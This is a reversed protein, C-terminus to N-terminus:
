ALEELLSDMTAIIPNIESLEIDTWDVIWTAIRGDRHRFMIRIGHPIAELTGDINHPIGYLKNAAEKLYKM